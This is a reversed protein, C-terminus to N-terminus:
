GDTTRVPEIGEDRLWQVVRERQRADRFAFWREREDPYDLLVDKFRRFAGRGESHTARSLREALREHTVTEIFAEMDAYGEHSDAQPVRIYRKGFGAEGRDAERVLDRQWDPLDWDALAAEFAQEWQVSDVDGLAEVL